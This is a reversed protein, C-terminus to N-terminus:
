SGACTPRCRRISPWCFPMGAGGGSQARDRLPSRSGGGGGRDRGRQRAVRPVGGAGRRRLGSVPSRPVAGGDARDASVPHPQRAAPCFPLDLDPDPDVGAAARRRQGTRTRAGARLRSQRHVSVPARSRDGAPDAGSLRRGHVARRALRPRRTRTGDARHGFDRRRRTAAAVCLWTAQQDAMLSGTRQRIADLQQAPTLGDQSPTKVGALYQGKLGAIRVMYFEDLNNASISLFRLRELLPHSVNDAEALVRENFALWSLERNIFRSPSDPDVSRIAVSQASSNVGLETTPLIVSQWTIRDQRRPGTMDRRPLSESQIQHPQRSAIISILWRLWMNRWLILTAIHAFRLRRLWCTTAMLLGTPVGIPSRM